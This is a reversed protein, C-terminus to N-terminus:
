QWTLYDTDNPVADIPYTWQPEAYEVGPQRALEAAVAEPPAGDAYHLLYIRSLDVHTPKRPRRDAPRLPDLGIAGHAGLIADVGAVGTSKGAAHPLEDQLKIIVVGPFAQREGPAPVPKGQRAAAAAPWLAACAALLGAAPRLVGRMSRLPIASRRIPTPMFPERLQAGGPAVTSDRQAKRPAASCWPVVACAACSHAPAFLM